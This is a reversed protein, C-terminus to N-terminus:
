HYCMYHYYYHYHRRLLAFAAQLANATVPAVAAPGQPGKSPLGAGLAHSLAHAFEAVDRLPLPASWASILHPLAAASLGRLAAAHEVGPTPDSSLDRLLASALSSVDRLSAFTGEKPAACFRSAAALLPPSPQGLRETAAVLEAVERGGCEPLRGAAYACLGGLLEGCGLRASQAAAQGLQRGACPMRVGAPVELLAAQLRRAPEQAAARGDAARLHALEQRLAAHLHSEERPPEQGARGGRCGRRTRRSAQVEAMECGRPFARSASRGIPDGRLHRRQRPQARLCAALGCPQPRAPSRARFLKFRCVLGTSAHRVHMVSMLVFVRVRVCVLLWVCTPCM